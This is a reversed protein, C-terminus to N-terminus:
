FQTSMAILLLTNWRMSAVDRSQYESEKVILLVRQAPSTLTQHM